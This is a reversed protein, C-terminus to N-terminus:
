CLCRYWRVEIIENGYLLYAISKKLNEFGNDAIYKDVIYHKNGWIIMAWLKSIYEYFEDENMSVIKESTYNKYYDEREKRTGEIVLLLSMEKIKENGNKIDNMLIQYNEKEADMETVDSLKKSTSRDSLLSGYNRDLRRVIEETDVGDSVNLCTRVNPMNFIEDLFMGDNFPNLKKVAIIQVEKDDVKLLNTKEQLYLPSVLEPLDLWMLQDLNMDVSYLNCLFDYIQLRNNIVEVFMKPNLSNTIIEIEEVQKNLTNIDKAVLVFYYSSALTYKEEELQNILDYYQTLLVIRKEDDKFKEILSEYYEKNPNLNMKKDLKYCKLKIDKIKFLEKFDFLFMERENKGFLTLDIANIEILCAYEGTKLVIVGDDNIKKVSSYEKSNKVKLKIKRKDLYKDNYNKNSKLKDCYEKLKSDKTSEM